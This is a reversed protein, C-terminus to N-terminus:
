QNGRRYACPPYWAITERVSGSYPNYWLNTKRCPVVASLADPVYAYHEWATNTAADTGSIPVLRGIPSGKVRDLDM